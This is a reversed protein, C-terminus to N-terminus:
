RLRARQSSGAIRGCVPVSKAPSRLPCLSATARDSDPFKQLRQRAGRLFSCRRERPHMSGADGGPVKEPTERQSFCQLLGSPPDTEKVSSNARRIAFSASRAPSRMKWSRRSRVKSFSRGNAGNGNARFTGLGLIRGIGDVGQGPGRPFPQDYIVIREISPPLGRQSCRHFIDRDDVVQRVTRVIAIHNEILREERVVRVGALHGIAAPQQQTRRIRQHALLQLAARRWARGRSPSTLRIKIKKPPTSAPFWVLWAM